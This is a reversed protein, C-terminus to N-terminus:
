IGIIMLRYRWLWLKRLDIEAYVHAYKGREVMQTTMDVKIPIVVKAVVKKIIEEDYYMLNLSPFQIWVMMQNFCEVLPNFEPSWKKVALYHDNIMSPGEFIVMERDETCDFKIMFYGNGVDM